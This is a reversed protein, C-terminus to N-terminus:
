CFCIKIVAPSSVEIITREELHGTEPSIYFVVISHSDQNGCLLFKGTPDITFNRPTKGKTSINEVLTVHGNTENIKFLALNDTFRNGAYLFHGNPTIQLESCSSNQSKNSLTSNTQVTSLVGTTSDWSAVLITSDLENTVYLYKGNPHIALHRPGAGPSTALFNHLTLNGNTEDFKYVLVKDQGLDAVFAYKNSPDTLICHAHPAEQRSPLVNSSGTHQIVSVAEGIEGNNKIPYVTVSGGCYNANLLFKKTSDFSIFCPAGGHSLVKNLFNFKGTNHDFAYAVIGGTNTKGEYENTETVAYVFRPQKISNIQLFTPNPTLPESNVLSLKGTKEDFKYLIIGTGRGEPVHGEIRTYQGVFVYLNDKEMGIINYYYLIV